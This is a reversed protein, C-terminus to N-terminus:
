SDTGPGKANNRNVLDSIDISNIDKEIQEDTLKVTKIQNDAQARQLKLALYVILGLCAAFVLYIMINVFSTM